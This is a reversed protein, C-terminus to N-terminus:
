NRIGHQATIKREDIRKTFINSVDIMICFDYLCKLLDDLEIRRQIEIENEM